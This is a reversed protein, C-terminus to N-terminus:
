VVSDVESYSGVGSAECNGADNGLFSGQKRRPRLKARMTHSHLGRGAIVVLVVGVSDAVVELVAVDKITM